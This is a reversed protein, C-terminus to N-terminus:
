AWVPWGGPAAGSDDSRWAGDHMEERRLFANRIQKNTPQKVGKLLVSKPACAMLLIWSSIHEHLTRHQEARM